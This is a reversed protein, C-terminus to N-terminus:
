RATRRRPSGSVTPTATANVTTTIQPMTAEKGSQSSSVAESAGMDTEPISATTEGAGQFPKAFTEMAAMTQDLYGSEEKRKELLTENNDQIEKLSRMIAKNSLDEFEVNIKSILNTLLTHQVKVEESKTGLTARSKLPKEVESIVSARLQDYLRLQEEQRTLQQQLVDDIATNQIQAESENSATLKEFEVRLQALEQEHRETELQTDVRAQEKQRSIEQAFVAEKFKLKAAYEAVAENRESEAENARRVDRKRCSEFVAREIM